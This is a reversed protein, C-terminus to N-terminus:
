LNQTDTQPVVAQGPIIRQLGDSVYMEGDSVTGRVYARNGDTHIMEVPRTVTSSGGSRTEIVLISWLGRDAQRLASLPVWFGREDVDRKADFRVVTGVPPATEPSLSFIVTITRQRADVVTNVSKVTASVEGIESRLVYDQGSEIDRATILPLGIRAELTGTEVLELISTGPGAITGVDTFRRTVVGDFPASIRALDIDVKLMNAQASAAAIRAAAADSQAQAEDLAQRSLHGKDVLSSQRRLTVDALEEMAEAERISAQAAALSAQLARTDLRALTQGQMVKDGIDVNIDTIRGRGNFGLQSTQRAEVLGSYAENLELVSSLKIIGAEVPIPAPNETPVLPGADSRMTLVFSVIGFGVIALVGFYILGRLATPRKKRIAKAGDM